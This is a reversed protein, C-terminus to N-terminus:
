GGETNVIPAPTEFVLGGYGKIGNSECVEVLVYYRTEPSLNVKECSCERQNTTTFVLQAEPDIQHKYEDYIPDKLSIYVNYKLFTHIGSVKWHIQIRTQDLSDMYVGVSPAQLLGYNRRTYYRSTILSEKVYVKNRTSVGDEDLDGIGSSGFYGNEMYNDLEKETQQILAMFHKFRQDRKLEGASDGKLDYLPASKVALRYYLEKKAVLMLPYIVGNTLSAMIENPFDRHKAVELVVALDEDSMQLWVSDDTLSPDQVLVSDRLYKVLTETSFEM